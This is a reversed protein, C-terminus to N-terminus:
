GQREALWQKIDAFVLERREPTENLVEHMYNEYYRVTIKESPANEVFIQTQKGDIVADDTPILILTSVTLGSASEIAQGGARIIWGVISASKYRHNLPDLRGLEQEHPDHTLLEAHYPLQQTFRPAISELFKLKVKNFKSVFPAYAPASLMLASVSVKKELVMTTAVLGGLSHGFLIPTCGLEQEFARFQDTAADVLANDNSIIGRKGESRGHGPHDHAAVEYGLNTLFTAFREYRGAHEGIGHLLYIGRNLPAVGSPPHWRHSYITGTM